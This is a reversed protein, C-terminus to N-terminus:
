KKTENGATLHWITEGAKPRAFHYEDGSLMNEGVLKLLSWAEFKREQKPWLNFVKHQRGNGAM